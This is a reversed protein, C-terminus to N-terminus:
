SRQGRVLQELTESFGAIRLPKAVHLDFGALYAREKDAPSAYGTLAILIVTRTNPDARLKRAVEYGDLGPLGIDCVVIEPKFEATKALGDPGNYAVETEYHDLELAERLSTAADVNDEVILVRRQPKAPTTAPSGARPWASPPAAAARLVSEAATALPLRITFEAGRGPGDSHASVEGDHLAVLAKVLALGLGLGGNARALGTAGQSFPEFLHPLLGADMGIGTDTVRLVAHGSAHDVRLLLRVRGKESFKMSNHLLNGLVQTLRTRDGDVEVPEDPLDLEVGIGFQEFSGSLDEVCRHVIDVLDLRERQLRIKGESIRTVDLLDDVLRVLHTVQREIVAHARQARDSGPEARKLIHISNAIPTMPNRLEHALVGLFQTKHEDSQALSEVHRRLEDSQQLLEENQAQIQETQAQLEESQAQIEENQAQLEESQAQLEENQSRIRESSARVEELLAQIEEYAAVSQLGIGIQTASSELFALADRGLKRLSGVLLVGHLRDQFALPLAVISRPLAQDYGLRVSFGSDAPIDEIAVARRERAAQGPIGDGVAVAPVDALAYSAVPELRDGDRAAYIVGLQADVHEVVAALTERALEERSLTAAVRESVRGEARLRQERAELAVAASGLAHALRRMEDRPEHALRQGNTPPALRLAPRWDGNQLAGATELLMRTPKSISRATLWALMTLMFATVVAMVILGNSTRARIAAIEGLAASEKREQLAGFAGTAGLLAERLQSLEVDNEPSIGRGRGSAALDEAFQLYADANRTIEAFAQQSDNEMPLARLRDLAGRAAILTDRFQQQGENDPNLLQRRLSVGVDYVAREVAHAHDRLPAIRQEYATQAQSSTEHWEFVLVLMTAVVILVAGFGIALRQGISLDSSGNM